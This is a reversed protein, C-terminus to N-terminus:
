SGTFPQDPNKGSGLAMASQDDVEDQWGNRTDAVCDIRRSYPKIDLLPTGDLADIGLVHLMNDEIGALKVISLGIANPRGPLRTSFLGRLDKQLFPAALLPSPSARHFHYILYIHSYGQLDKLGPAYEPWVEVTGAVDRAYCPQIPGAGPERHPSHIIGIARYCFVPPDNEPM